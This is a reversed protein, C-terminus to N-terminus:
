KTARWATENIEVCALHGVKVRSDCWISRGAERARVCFSLDEGYGLLPVFPPAVPRGPIAEHLTIDRLVDTKMLVAAMGCGEVEFLSDSEYELMQKYCNREPYERDARLTEYICPSFPPRRRFFIGCVIDKDDALLRELLDPAFTMDSDLWLIYDCQEKLAQASLSNRADYVLSNLVMGYRIQVGEPVKLGLLSQVFATHMEDRCPVAIMIKKM